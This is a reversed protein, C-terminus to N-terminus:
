IQYVFTIVVCMTRGFFTIVQCNRLYFIIQLLGSRVQKYLIHVKYSVARHFQRVIDIHRAYNITKETRRMHIFVVIGNTNDIKNMCLGNYVHSLNLIWQTVYWNKMVYVNRCKTKPIHLCFMEFVLDGQAIVDYHNIFLWLM